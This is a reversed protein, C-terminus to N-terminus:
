EFQSKNGEEATNHTNTSFNM